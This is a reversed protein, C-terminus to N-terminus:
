LVFFLLVIVCNRVISLVIRKYINYQTLSFISFVIISQCLHEMIFLIITIIFLNSFNSHM